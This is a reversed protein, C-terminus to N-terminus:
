KFGNRLKFYEEYSFVVDLDKVDAGKKMSAAAKIKSYDNMQDYSLDFVQQIDSKLKAENETVYDDQYIKTLQDDVLMEVDKRNHFYFDGPHITFLTKLFRIEDTENETLIGDEVAIRIYAFILHLFEVKAISDNVNYYTLIKHIAERSIQDKAILECIVLLYEPLSIENKIREFNIALTESSM